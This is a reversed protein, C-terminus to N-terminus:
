KHLPAAVVVIHLQSRRLLVEVRVCGVDARGGRRAVAHLSADDVDVCHSAPLVAPGAGAVANSADGMQALMQASGLHTPTTEVWCCDAPQERGGSDAEAAQAEKRGQPLTERACPGHQLSPRDTIGFDLANICAM